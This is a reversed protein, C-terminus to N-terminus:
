EAWGKLLERADFRSEAALNELLEKERAALRPPIVIKLKVYEDGRGGRRLNMGQRRLRLRQGGQAGAPITM